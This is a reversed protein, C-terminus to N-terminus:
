HQPLPEKPESHSHSRIRQSYNNRNGQAKATIDAARRLEEINTDDTLLLEHSFMYEPLYGSFLVRYDFLLAPNLVKAMAFVVTTCNATLTNYFGADKSLLNAKEMYLRFLAQAQEKTIDVPYRYVEEGRINTRVFLIDSEEAAILALEYDKFFGGIESFKQGRKKRIEASFVLHRGDDFSFSVLTHAIAPSGWYSLFMDIGTIQDLDYDATNWNETYDQETRWDFDRINHLRVQNGNFDATVTRSVEPEWDRTLSPKINVWWIGLVVLSLVYTIGFIKRYQQLDTFWLSCLLALTLGIFVAIVFSNLLRSGSLQYYLALSGWLTMLIILLSLIFKGVLSLIILTTKHM